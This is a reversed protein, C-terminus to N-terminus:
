THIPTLLPTRMTLLLEARFFMIGEEEKELIEKEKMGKGQISNSTSNSSTPEEPQTHKTEYEDSDARQRREWRGTSCVSSSAVTDDPETVMETETSTSGVEEDGEWEREADESSCTTGGEHEGEAELDLSSGIVEILPALSLVAAADNHEITKKTVYKRRKTPKGFADAAVWDYDDLNSPASPHPASSSLLRRKGRPLGDNDRHNPTPGASFLAQCSSSSSSNGGVMDCANLHSEEWEDGGSAYPINLLLLCRLLPQLSTHLITSFISLTIHFLLSEGEERSCMCVCGINQSYSGNEKGKPTRQPPSWVHGIGEGEEDLEEEGKGDEEVNEFGVSSNGIIGGTRSSVFHRMVRKFKQKQLDQQAPSLCCDDPNIDAEAEKILLKIAKKSPSKYKTTKPKGKSPKSASLLLLINADSHEDDDEEKEEVKKLNKKKSSSRRVKVSSPTPEEGDM